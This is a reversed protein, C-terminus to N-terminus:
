VIVTGTYYLSYINPIGNTNALSYFDINNFQSVVLRIYSYNNPTTFTFTKSQHTMTPTKYGSTM